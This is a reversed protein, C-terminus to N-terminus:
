QVIKCVIENHQYEYPGVDSNDLIAAGDVYM